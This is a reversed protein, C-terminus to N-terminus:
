KGSQRQSRLFDEVIEAAQGHYRDKDYQSEMEIQPRTSVHYEFGCTTCTYANDFKTDNEITRAVHPFYCKPCLTLM